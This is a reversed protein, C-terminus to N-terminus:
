HRAEGPRSERPAELGEVMPDSSLADEVVADWFAGAERGEVRFSHAIERLAAFSRREAGELLRELRLRDNPCPTRAHEAALRRAIESWRLFARTRPSGPDM